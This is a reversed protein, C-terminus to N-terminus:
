SWRSLVHEYGGVELVRICSMWLFLPKQTLVKEHLTAYGLLEPMWMGKYIPTGLIIADYNSPHHNPSQVNDLTVDFGSQRLSSAIFEAIEQTSGSKTAYVLLIKSM